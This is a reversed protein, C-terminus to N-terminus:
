KQEKQENTAEIKIMRVDDIMRDIRSTIADGIDKNEFLAPLDELSKNSTIWIKTRADGAYIRDFIDWLLEGATETIRRKGIDDILLLNNKLAGRIYDMSNESAMKCIRAYGAVFDSFRVFQCWKGRKAQLFLNYVASRTKGTDYKGCIFLHKDKNDLIQRALTNNGKEVDWTLFSQPIQAHQILEAYRQRVNEAEIEMREREACIKCKNNTDGGHMFEFAFEPVEVKSEEYCGCRPCTNRYVVIRKKEIVRSMDEM